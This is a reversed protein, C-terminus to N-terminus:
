YVPGVNLGTLVLLALGLRRVAGARPSQEKAFHYGDQDAVEIIWEAGDLMRPGCAKRTSPPVSVGTIPADALLEQLMKAEVDTLSRDVTTGIKGPANGGAGTLEKAVIHASASGIGEVRVTIPPDFSRLWTFRVATREPRGDPAYLSPEGAAHLHGSYWRREFDSIVPSNVIKPGFRCDPVPKALIEPFYVVPADASVAQLALWWALFIVLVM